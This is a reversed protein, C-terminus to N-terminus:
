AWRKIAARVRMKRYIMMGVAVILVVIIWIIFLLALSVADPQATPPRDVCSGSRCMYECKVSEKWEGSFCTWVANGDCKTQGDVCPPPAPEAGKAEAYVEFVTDNFVSENVAKEIRYVLLIENDKTFQRYVFARQVDSIAYIRSGPANAKMGADAFYSPLRNWIVVSGLDDGAYRIVAMFVSTSGSSYLYATGTFNGKVGGSFDIREQITANTDSWVGEVVSKFATNNALEFPGQFRINQSASITTTGGGGGGGGGGSSGTGSTPPQTPETPPATYNLLLHIYYTKNETENGQPVMAEYDSIEGNFGIMHLQIPAAIMFSTSDQLLYLRYSGNAGAVTLMTTYPVSSITTANFKFDGVSTFTNTAADDGNGTIENLASVNGPVLQSIVPASSSNSIVVYGSGVGTRLDHRSVQGASGNFALPTGDGWFSLVLGHLGHWNPTSEVYYSLDVYSVTGGRAGHFANGTLFEYTGNFFMAPMLVLVLVAFLALLSLLERDM